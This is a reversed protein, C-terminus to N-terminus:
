TKEAPQLYSEWLDIHVPAKPEAADGWLEGSEFSV